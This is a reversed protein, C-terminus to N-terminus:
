QPVLLLMSLLPFGEAKSGSVTQQQSSLTICSATIFAFQMICTSKFDTLVYTGGSYWDHVRSCHLAVLGAASRQNMLVLWWWSWLRPLEADFAVTASMVASVTEAGRCRVQVETERGHSWRHLTKYFVFKQYDGRLREDVVSDPDM